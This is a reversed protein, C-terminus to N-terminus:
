FDTADSGTDLLQRALQEGLGRTDPEAEQNIGRVGEERSANLVPLLRQTLQSFAEKRQSTDKITCISTWASVAGSIIMRSEQLIKSPYLEGTGLLEQKWNDVRGEPAFNTVDWNYLDGFRYEYIIPTTTLAKVCSPIIRFDDRALQRLDFGKERVSPGDLLPSVRLNGLSVQRDMGLTAVTHALLELRVAASPYRPRNISLMSQDDALELEVIARVAWPGMSYVSCLDAFIEEKWNRWRAAQQNDNGSKSLVVNELLRGFSSLLAANPALDYQIHHGIEHGLYILWWPEQICLPPLSVIPVPLQQIYKRLTLDTNFNGPIDDRPIAKPSYDSEIYPLPTTHKIVERENIDLTINRFVETYCSWAIEDAAGLVPALVPDDRQDFKSQFYSWIRRLQLLSQDYSRCTMYVMSSPESDVISNLMARFYGLCDNLVKEITNLQTYYQQWTDKKRRRKLWNNIENQLTELTNSTQEIRIRNTLGSVM